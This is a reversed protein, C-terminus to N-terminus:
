RVRKILKKKNDMTIAWLSGQFLNIGKATEYGISSGSYIKKFRKGNTLIGTVIFGIFNEKEGKENTLEVM